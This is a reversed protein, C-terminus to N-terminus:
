RMELHKLKEEEMKELPNQEWKRDEKGDGDDNEGRFLCTGFKKRITGMIVDAKERWKAKAFIYALGVIGFLNCIGVVYAACECWFGSEDACTPDSQLMGGIWFTFVALLLSGLELHLLKKSLFPQYYSTLFILLTLVFLVCYIQQNEAVFTGIAIIAIKRMIVTVEWYYYADNYGDYLMGYKLRTVPLERNTKHLIYLGYSPLGVIYLLTIMGVTCFVVLHQDKWCTIELDVKSYREEGIMETCSILNAFLQIFSPFMLYWLLVIASIIEDKNGRIFKICTYTLPVMFLPLLLICISRLVFVNWISMTNLVCDLSFFAKSVSTVVDQAAFLQRFTENWPVDMNRALLVTQLYSLAIKKVGDSFHVKREKFVTIKVLVITGFTAVVIGVLFVVINLESSCEVCQGVSSGRAHNIDCSACLRSNNKYGNACSAINRGKKNVDEYRKIANNKAGLCAQVRLCPYYKTKNYQWYGFKAYINSKTVAGVCSAGVPCTQCKWSTMKSESADLYFEDTNCDTTTKWNLFKTTTESITKDTYQIYAQLNYVQNVIPITPVLLSSTTTSGNVILRNNDAKGTDVNIPIIVIHSITKNTIPLTWKLFLKGDIAEVSTITPGNGVENATVCAINNSDPVQKSPCPICKTQGEMGTHLLGTCPECKGNMGAKGKTCNTCQVSGQVFTTKGPACTNCTSNGSYSISGDNFAGIPCAEFSSCGKKNITDRCNDPYNGPPVDLCTISNNSYKGADCVTCSTANTNIPQVKGPSCADCSASGYKNTAKGALCNLCSPYQDNEGLYTGPHCPFCQMGYYKGNKNLENKCDIGFKPYSSITDRCIDQVCKQPSGSITNSSSNLTTNILIITPTTYIDDGNMANNNSFYSNVIAVNGNSIYM